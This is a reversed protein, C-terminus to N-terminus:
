FRYHLPSPPPFVAQISSSLKGVLRSLVRVSVSPSHTIKQCDGKQYRKGQGKPPIPVNNSFKGPFWSVRTGLHARPYVQGLKHCIGRHIAPQRDHYYATSSDGQIRVNDSYRRPLHNAKGGDKAVPSLIYTQIHTAEAM